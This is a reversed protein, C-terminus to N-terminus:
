KETTKKGCCKQKVTALKKAMSKLKEYLFEM